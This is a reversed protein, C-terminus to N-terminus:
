HVLANAKWELYTDILFGLILKIAICGADSHVM